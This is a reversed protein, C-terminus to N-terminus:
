RLPYPAHAFLTLYGTGLEHACLRIEQLLELQNRWDLGERLFIENRGDPLDDRCAGATGGRCSPRSAITVFRPAPHPPRRPAKSSHRKLHVAFDHPGSAGVSADLERFSIKASSPPLFARDGPLARLFGNFGNRPSHRTNGAHGHHSYEYARKMKCALSRTRVARGANGAGESAPASTAAFSPREAGRSRPPTDSIPQKVNSDSVPAVLSRDDRVLSRLSRSGPGM